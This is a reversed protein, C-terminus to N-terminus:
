ELIKRKSINEATTSYNAHQEKAILHNVNKFGEIKLGNQINPLHKRQTYWRLHQKLHM